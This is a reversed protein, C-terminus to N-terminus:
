NGSFNASLIMQWKFKLGSVYLLKYIRHRHICMAYAPGRKQVQVKRNDSDEARIHCCSLCVDCPTVACAYHLSSTM